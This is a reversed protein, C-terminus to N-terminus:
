KAYNVGNFCKDCVFGDGTTVHHREQPFKCLRCQECRLQRLGAKHQVAAWEHWNAYGAPPQDGPQYNGVTEFHCIM